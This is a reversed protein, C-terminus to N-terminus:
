RFGPKIATPMIWCSIPAIGSEGMYSTQISLGVNLDTHDHCEYSRKFSRGAPKQYRLSLLFLILPDSPAMSITAKQMLCWIWRQDLLEESQLPVRGGSTSWRSIVEWINIHWGIRTLSPQTLRLLRSSLFGHLGPLCATERTVQFWKLSLPKIFFCRLIWPDASSM